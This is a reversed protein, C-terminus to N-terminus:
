KVSSGKQYKQEKGNLKRKDLVTVYKLRAYRTNIDPYVYNGDWIGEITNMSIYADDSENEPSSEDISDM